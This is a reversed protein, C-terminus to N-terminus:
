ELALHSGDTPDVLFGRKDFLCKTLWVDNLCYRIVEYYKGQQWLKPALEGSGTKQSALNVKALANLSYGGRTEGPVYHPPQGSAIRVERLLDYTTKIKIGHAECLKDDFAVSNFGIVTERKNVLLQFHEFYSVQPMGVQMDADVFAKLQGTMYDYAGIVSIGMNEHDDWGNCYMLDPDTKEKSSPICKIIECDYVIKSETM